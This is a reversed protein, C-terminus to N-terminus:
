LVPYSIGQLTGFSDQDQRFLYRHQRDSSVTKVAFEAGTEPAAAGDDGDLAEKFWRFFFAAFDSVIEKADVEASVGVVAATAIVGAVVLTAVANTTSNHTSLYYDITSLVSKSM